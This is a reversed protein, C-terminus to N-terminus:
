PIDPLLTSPGFVEDILTDGLENDDGNAPSILVNTCVFDNNNTTSGMSGIHEYENKTKCDDDQKIKHTRENCNNDDNDECEENDAFAPAVQSIGTGTIATLIGISLAVFM